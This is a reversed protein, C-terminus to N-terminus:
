NHELKSHAGFQLLNLNLILDRAFSASNAM